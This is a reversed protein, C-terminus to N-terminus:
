GGFKGGTLNVVHATLNWVEIETLLPRFGYMMSGSVGERIRWFIYPLNMDQPFAAPSGSALTLTGPGNGKGDKGHCTECYKEYLPAGAAPDITAIEGQFIGPDTRVYNYPVEGTGYVSTNVKAGVAFSTKLYNVDEWRMKEALFENWVPMATDRIGNTIKAFQTGDWQPVSTLTDPGLKKRLDAPKPNLYSGAWGNGDGALGHCHSCQILFQQRGIDYRVTDPIVSRREVETMTFRETDPPKPPAALSQTFMTRIYTVLQWRQTSNYQMKWAPMATWPVGESVRWFYDGDTFDAYDAQASFDPPVPEISERYIGEGHAADGHCVACERTWLRKGADITDISIPLPNALDYEAPLDGEDPDREFTQAYVEQIYRIVNWREQETLSEKWPPMVTGQVGESVHWFWQDDPMDRFPDEKFNVPTVILTGGYSGLGNGACGHCTLCHGTYIKKGEYMGSAIFTPWGQPKPNDGGEQLAFGLAPPAANEYPQPPLIMFEAANRDGLHYLYEAIAGVETDSLFTFEPMISMPSYERPHKLHDIEWQMSRKRGIYSLDPGTRESGLTMPNDFSYNGGASVAGMGNDVERVYQTHCYNCGNSYFLKRGQEQLATYPHAITTESPRWIAVPTFVAVAVVAFFVALAGFFIVRFTMKM